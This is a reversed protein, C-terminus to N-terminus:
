LVKCYIEGTRTNIIYISETKTLAFDTYSFLTKETVISEIKFLFLVGKDNGAQEIRLAAQKDKVPLYVRQNYFYDSGGWRKTIEIKNKPFRKTAYEICLTGHNIYVHFEKYSGEYLEIDYAFGTKELNYNSNLKHIYYFTTNKILDREEKLSKELEKFEDSEKFLEKQLDTNYGKIHYRSIVKLDYISKVMWFPIKNDSEGDLEFILVQDPNYNKNDIVVSCGGILEDFNQQANMPKVLFLGVLILVFFSKKM